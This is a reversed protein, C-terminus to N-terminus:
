DLPAQFQEVAGGAVADRLRAACIAAIRATQWRDDGARPATEVHEVEPGLGAAGPEADVGRFRFGHAARKRAHDVGM